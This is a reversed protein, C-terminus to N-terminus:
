RGSQGVDPDEGIVPPAVRDLKGVIANEDLEILYGPRQHESDEGGRGRGAGAGMPVAGMGGRAGAAGPTTGTVGPGAGGAPGFGSRAGGGSGPGGSGRPGFGDAGGAAFRGGAGGGRYRGGAGGWYPGSGGAARGDQSAAAGIGTAGLAGLGAAGGAPALGPRTQSGAAGAGQGPTEVPGAHAPATAAPAQPQAGSGAGVPVGAGVPAAAGASGVPSGAGMGGAGASGAGSGAGGSGAGGSGAEGSGAGGISPVGVTGGGAAVQSGGPAALSVASGEPARFTQLATVTGNASGQYTTMVQAAADTRGDYQARQVFYNSDPNAMSVPAVVNTAATWLSPEDMGAPMSNRAASYHEAVDYVSQEAQTAQQSAAAAFAALPSLAGQTADAAAGSHSARGNQMASEVYGGVEDLATSFSRYSGALESLGAAGRGNVVPDRLEALERGEFVEHTTEYV